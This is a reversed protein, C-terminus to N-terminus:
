EDIEHAKKITRTTPDPAPDNRLKIQQLGEFIQSANQATLLKEVLEHDKALRALGSVLPLYQTSDAPVALLFVLRVSRVAKPGWVLPKDCRGLAFSLQKLAALRAHPFAM